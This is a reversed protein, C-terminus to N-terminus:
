ASYGCMVRRRVVDGVAQLDPLHVLGLDIPPHLLGGVHELEARHQVALGLLEGTALPLPNRHTPGDDAFRLHEQHVLWQGVQVGLEAHLHAGLDGLYLVIQVDRRQVDRVVLDLGHGHAVPHRHDLAADQLLDPRRLEEVVVRRVDEDGAEDARRRHVQTHPRDDLPAYPSPSLNPAAM